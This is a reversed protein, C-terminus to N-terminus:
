RQMCDTSVPQLVACWASKSAWWLRLGQLFVRWDLGESNHQYTVHVSSIECQGQLHQLIWLHICANLVNGFSVDLTHKIAIQYDKIRVGWVICLTVAQSGAALYLFVHPAIIGHTTNTTCAHCYPAWLGCVRGSVHRLVIRRSIACM